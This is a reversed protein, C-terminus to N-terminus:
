LLLGINIDKNYFPTNQWFQYLNIDCTGHTFRCKKLTEETFPGNNVSTLVDCFPAITKLLTNITDIIDLNVSTCLYINGENYTISNTKREVIYIIVVEKIEGNKKIVYPILVDNNMNKIIQKMIVNTSLHLKYKQNNNEILSKICPLESTIIKTMILSDNLPINFYKKMQYQRKDIFDADYLKKLNIPRHFYQLIDLKSPMNFRTTAIVLGVHDRIIDSLRGFFQGHLHNGRYKEHVCVMLVVCIKMSQNFYSGETIIANIVGIIQSDQELVLTVYSDYSTMYSKLLQKSYIKSDFYHEQLFESMRSLEDDNNLDYLKFKDESYLGCNDNKLENIKHWIERNM